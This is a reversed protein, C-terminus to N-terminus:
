YLINKSLLYTTVPHILLPRLRYIGDRTVHYDKSGQREGVPVSEIIHSNLLSELIATSESDSKNFIRSHDSLSLTKHLFFAKLTFAHDLPLDNLYDFKLPKLPRVTLTSQDESFEASRIWNFLALMVNQGSSRWLRDFFEERALAQLQEDSKARRLRQRMIASAEEPEEFRLAMGSRRHRNIILSEVGNRDLPTLHYSDVFGVATGATKSLFQWTYTGLTGVWYISRDTRSLFLIVREVTNVSQAARLVLHEMNDIFFVRPPDTRPAHVLDEELEEITINPDDRGLAKAVVVAFEDPNYIRERLNVEAVDCDSLITERITNLFSTRGSGLPAQILLVGLQHTDKWREFHQKVWVIDRSRGELLSTEDLPEFSFLRRYILPLGKRLRDVGALADITEYKVTQSSDLVGVASQGIKILSEARRRGLTLLRLAFARVRNWVLSGRNLAKELRRDWQARMGAWQEETTEASYLRRHVDTWDQQFEENISAVFGSWAPRLNAALQGLTMSARSLGDLVLGEAAAVVDVPGESTESSPEDIDEADPDTPSLEDIAADLNYQAIHQVQETEIWVKRVASRLQEAPRRLRDPLPPELVEAVEEKMQITITKTSSSASEESPLSHIEVRDPLAQVFVSLENWVDRGPDSLVQDSSVLGPLHRFIESLFGTLQRAQKQLAERLTEPKGESRAKRAVAAVKSRVDELRKSMDSFTSLVSAVTADGVRTVLARELTLLKDRLEMLAVYLRIREEVQRYWQESRAEDRGLEELVRSSEKLPRDSISLLVTGARSFDDALRDFVSVITGEGLGEPPTADDALEELGSQFTQAQRLLAEYLSLQKPEEDAPSEDSDDDKVEAVPPEDSEEAALDASPFSPVMDWPILEGSAEPDPDVGRAIVLVGNAWTAVLHELRRLVDGLAARASRHEEVVSAPFAQRLHFSALHRAPVVRSLPLRELPPRRLVRRAVEASSFAADSTTLRARHALKRLRVWLPDDSLPDYLDRPDFLESNEPFRESLTGVDNLFRRFRAGTDTSPGKDTTVDLLPQLIERAFAQRYEGIVAQPLSDNEARSKELQGLLARHEGALEDLRKKWDGFLEDLSGRWRAYLKLASAKTKDHTAALSAETDSWPNEVHPRGTPTSSTDMAEVAEERNM